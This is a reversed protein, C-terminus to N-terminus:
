LSPARVEQFQFVLLIMMVLDIPAMGMLGCSVNFYHLDTPGDM